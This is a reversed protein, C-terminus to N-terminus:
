VSHTVPVGSPWVPVQEVGFVISTARYDLDALPTALEMNPFRAAIMPFAKRLEMRGLEAGVCRHFGHGFALHSGTAAEPNFGDGITARPDRNAAPLQCVLVAGKPVTRGAVVTEQKTFRPFAFQVPTVLRLLEEVIPEVSDPENAVQHWLDRRELLVATGLALMSASTELGGLFVGDALGALDVDSIEDGHEKIIQGILGPGPNIRQRRVEEELFDLGETAADFPGSGGTTVDFRATALKSFHQRREPEMGLLDCIVRFPVPFAFADTLDVTEGLAAAAEIQDLQDAVIEEIMPTLRALRRVTFEPTILKRLRTHEPPDTFGLGGVGVEALRGTGLYPRIDNSYTQKSAGLVERVEADGSVIWIELGLLSAAKYVPERDRTKSLKKSPALVERELLWTLHPPIKDLKTLDLGGTRALIARLLIDKVTRVFRM